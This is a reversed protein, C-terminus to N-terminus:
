TQQMGTMGVCSGTQALQPVDRIGIILNGQVVQQYSNVDSVVYYARVSWFEHTPDTRVWLVGPDPQQKEPYFQISSISPERHPSVGVRGPYPILLPFVPDPLPSPM